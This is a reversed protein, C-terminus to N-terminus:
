FRIGHGEEKLLEDHTGRKTSCGPLVVHMETDVKLGWQESFQVEYRPAHSRSKWLCLLLIRVFCDGAQSGLVASSFRM